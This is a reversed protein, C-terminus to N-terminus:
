RMGVQKLIDDPNVGMNQCMNRFVQEQQGEDKGAMMQNVRALNQQSQPDNQMGMQQQFMQMPNQAGRSM